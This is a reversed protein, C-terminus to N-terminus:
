GKILKEFSRAVTYPLIVSFLMAPIGNSTILFLVTAVLALVYVLRVLASQM